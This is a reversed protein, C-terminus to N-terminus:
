KLKIGLKDYLAPFDLNDNLLATFRQVKQPQQVRSRGMFSEVVEIAQLTDM